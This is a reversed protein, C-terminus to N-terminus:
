GGPGHGTGGGQGDGRGGRGRGPMPGGESSSLVRIAAQGSVPCKYECIGCGICHGREVHPLLITRTEGTEGIVESQELWIAKEPLPCMEECVICDTQEAWPLCRDQDIHAIGIVQQRKVELSLPPIAEVPCVQGCANCSYDCYGLRPVLIPSWIGEVGAETVAPSLAGTPCARVCEACRICRQLIEGNTVGPPRLVSASSETRVLDSTLLGFGVAGAGIAALAQRRNPDYAEWAPRPPAFRFTTDRAACGDVCDMCVTCEAPDSAFGRDARITGTPCLRVCAKCSSCTPNVHRRVLAVKSILALLGGLPCLARCWFRPALWNLGVIVILLLVVGLGATAHAPEVPFVGPRLVGELWVVSPRLAEVNYALRELGTMLWDAAPWLAAALARFAITIPDLILLTLSGFLAAVLVVALTLYKVARWPELSERAARRRRPTIADLGTGLPCLWGCWVRGFVLTLAVTLLALASTALLVRSAITQAVIALPDLRFPLDVISPPNARRAATVFLALFGLLSLAQVAQRLRRWQSRRRPHRRPEAAL